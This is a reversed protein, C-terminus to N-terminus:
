EDASRADTTATFFEITSNQPTTARNNNPSSIAPPSLPASQASRSVDHSARTRKTPCSRTPPSSNLTTSAARSRPAVGPASLSVAFTNSAVSAADRVNLSWHCTTRAERYVFHQVRGSGATGSITTHAPRGLATSQQVLVSKTTRNALASFPRLVSSRSRATKSPSVNIARAPGPSSTPKYHTRQFLSTAPMTIRSVTTAVTRTPYATSTLARRPQWRSTLLRPIPFRRISGPAGIIRSV